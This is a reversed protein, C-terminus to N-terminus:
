ASMKYDHTVMGAHADGRVFPSWWFAGTKRIKFHGRVLHARTIRDNKGSTLGAIARRYRMGRLRVTRHSFLERKRSKVRSRNLKSLDSRDLDVGNQTNLLILLSKFFIMEGGWNAMESQIIETPLALPAFSFQQRIHGLAIADSKNRVSARVAKNVSKNSRIFDLEEQSVDNHSDGFRFNCSVPCVHVGHIDSWGLWLRGRTLLDDEAVALIGIKSPKTLTAKARDSYGNGDEWEDDQISSYSWEFWCLSYPLRAFDDADMLSKAHGLRVSDVAVAVDDDLVFKQASQLNSQMESNAANIARAPLIWPENPNSNMLEAPSAIPRLEDMMRDCLM